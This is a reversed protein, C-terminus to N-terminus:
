LPSFAHLLAHGVISSRTPVAVLSCGFVSRTWGIVCAAISLYPQWGESSWKNVLSECGLKSEAYLGDNGFVGHNPSCPLLTFAPRNVIGREQKANKVAGLLRTVNTLM